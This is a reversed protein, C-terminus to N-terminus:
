QKRHNGEVLQDYLQRYEYATQRWGVWGSKILNRGQSGMRAATDRDDLLKILAEAAAASNRPEVLIGNKGDMVLETIGVAKTAVVPRGCSMAEKLVNPVGEHYSLLVSIECAAYWWVLEAHPVQGAFTVKSQLGRAEVLSNLSEKDQGSGVLVLRAAPYKRAVWTFADILEYIGKQQILRGVYLIIRDNVQLGLKIKAQVQSIGSTDFMNDDVGEYIVKVERTEGSLKEAQRALEQGVAVVADTNQLTYRAKQSVGAPKQGVMNVDSGIATCVSYVGLKEAMLLGVYGTPVLGYSHIIKYRAVANFTSVLPLLSWYMFRMNWEDYKGGPLCLFRPHYIEVGDINERWPVRGMNRWKEKYWLVVPSYPVPAIVKVNVGAAQLNQIMRFAFIGSNINFKNPFIPSLFIVNDPSGSPRFGRLIGFQAMISPVLMGLYFFKAHHDMCTLGALAMFLTLMRCAIMDAPKETQGGLRWMSVFLALLLILGPLGLEAFAALYINHPGKNLGVGSVGETAPLYRTYAYPFNDLGVGHLVNNKCIEAGVLWIDFRGAAREDSIENFSQARQSIVPMEKVAYAGLCCAIIVVAILGVLVTRKNLAKILFRAGLINGALLTLFMALWAGRSGSLLIALLMVACASLCALRMLKDKTTFALYGGFIVGLGLLRAYLNPDQLNCIVARTTFDHLYGNYIGLLAAIFAGFLFSGLIYHVDKKKEVLNYGLVVMALLQVLSIMRRMSQEPEIAWATSLFSWFLYLVLIFIFNNLKFFKRALILHMLWGWFTVIGILKIVTFSPFIVTLDELPIFFVMVCFGVLPRWVILAILPLGWLVLFPLWNGTFLGYVGLLFAIALLLGLPWYKYYDGQM